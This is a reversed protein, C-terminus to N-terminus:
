STECLRCGIIVPILIELKLDEFYRDSSFSRFIISEQDQPFVM